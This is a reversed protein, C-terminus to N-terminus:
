GNREFIAQIVVIREEKLNRVINRWKTSIDWVFLGPNIPRPKDSRPKTRAREIGELVKKTDDNWSLQKFGSENILIQLDDASLLFSIDSSNAWIVPYHVPSKIGFCVTNIALRGKPRLIRSVQSFLRSKDEINMLVHQLFAADFADDNFPMELANGQQIKIKNRLGIHDNIVEAARCYEKSLDLGTVHCGFRSALKRAPGGIGSGIDLVKMKENLDVKQALEFTAASGRLHLEEIPALAEKILEATNLSEKQLTALINDSLDKQGYQNNIADEYDM